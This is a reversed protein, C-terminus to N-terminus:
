STRQQRSLPQAAQLPQDPASRSPRRAFQCTPPFSWARVAPLLACTLRASVPLNVSAIFYKTDDVDFRRGGLSIEKRGRLVVCLRPTYIIEAPLTPATVKFITLGTISTEQRPISAHREIIAILEDKIKM